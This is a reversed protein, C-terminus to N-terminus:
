GGFEDLIQDATWDGGRLRALHAAIDHAEARRRARLCAGTMMQLAREDRSDVALARRGASLVEETAGRSAALAALGRWGAGLRPDLQTARRLEAEAATTDGADRALLGQCLAAIAPGEAPPKGLRDLRELSRLVERLAHPGMDIPDTQQLAARVFGAHAEALDPLARLARRLTDAAERPLNASLYGLGQRVLGEADPRSLQEGREEALELRVETQLMALSELRGGHLKGQHFALLLADYISRRRDDRLIRRATEYTDARAEREEPSLGPSLLAQRQRARAATDIETETPPRSQRVRASALDDHIGFFSHALVAEPSPPEESALTHYLHEANLGLMAYYDIPETAPPDSGEPPPAAPPAEAAPRPTGCYPCAAADQPLPATCGACRVVGLGVDPTPSARMNDYMRRLRPDTLVRGAAELLALRRAPERGLHSTDDPFLARLQRYRRAITRTEGRPDVELLRYFDLGRQVADAIQPAGLDLGRFFGRSLAGCNTCIGDDDLPAGCSPCPHM